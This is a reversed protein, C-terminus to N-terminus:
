DEKPPAYRDRIVALLAAADAVARLEPLQYVAEPWYWDAGARVTELAEAVEPHSAVPLGAVAEALKLADSLDDAVGDWDIGVAKILDPISAEASKLERNLSKRDLNPPEGEARPAPPHAAIIDLLSRTTWHMRM